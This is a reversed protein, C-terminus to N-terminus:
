AKNLGGGCGSNPNPLLLVFNNFIYVFILYMKQKKKLYHFDLPEFHFCRRRHSKLFRTLSHISFM